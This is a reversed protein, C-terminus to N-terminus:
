FGYVRDLGCAKQAKKGELEVLANIFLSKDGTLNIGDHIISYYFSPNSKGISNKKLITLEPYLGILKSNKNFEVLLKNM